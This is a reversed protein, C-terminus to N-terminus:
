SNILCHEHRFECINAIQVIIRNKASRFAESVAKPVVHYVLMRWYDIILAAIGHKQLFIALQQTEDMSQCISINKTQPGPGNGIWLLWRQQISVSLFVGFLFLSFWVFFLSWWMKCEKIRTKHMYIISPELVNKHKFLSFPFHERKRAWLSM